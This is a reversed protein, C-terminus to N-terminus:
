GENRILISVTTRNHTCAVVKREQRRVLRVVVVVLREVLVVVEALQAEEVPQVAGVAGEPAFPRVRPVPGEPSCLRGPLEVWVNLGVSDFILLIEGRLM